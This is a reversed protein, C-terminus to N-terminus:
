SFMKSQGLNNPGYFSPTISHQIPHGQVIICMHENLRHFIINYLDYPHILLIALGKAITTEM